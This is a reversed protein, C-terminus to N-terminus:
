QAMEHLLMLHSWVRGTNRRGRVAGNRAVAQPAVVRARYQQCHDHRISSRCARWHRAHVLRRVRPPRTCPHHPRPLLWDQRQHCPRLQSAPCFPDCSLSALTAMDIPNCPTGHLLVAHLDHPCSPHLLIRAAGTPSITLGLHLSVAAFRPVLRLQLLVCAGLLM